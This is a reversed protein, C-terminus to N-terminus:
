QGNHGSPSSASSSVDCPQTMEHLTVQEQAQEVPSDGTHLWRIGYAVSLHIVLTDCSGSVSFDGGFFFRLFAADWCVRGVAFLEDLM